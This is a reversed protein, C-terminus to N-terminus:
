TETVSLKIAFALKESDFIGGDPFGYLKIYISIEPKLTAAISTIAVDPFLSISGVLSNIYKKLEAMDDLIHARAKTAILELKNSQYDNYLRVAKNLGEIVNNISLRIVEYEPYKSGDQKLKVVKQITEYYKIQTFNAIVYEFNGKSYNHIIPNLETIITALDYYYSLLTYNSSGSLTESSNGSSNGSSSESCVGISYSGISIYSAGAGAYGVGIGTSTNITRVNSLFSSRNGSFM